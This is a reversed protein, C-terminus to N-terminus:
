LPPIETVTKPIYVRKIIDAKGDQTTDKLIAIAEGNKSYRLNVFITGFENVTLHRAKGQISDTVVIAEFDDPIFLGGNDTDGPPLIFTPNKACQFFNKRLTKLFLFTVLIVM